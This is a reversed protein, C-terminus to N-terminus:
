CSIDVFVNTILTIYNQDQKIILMKGFSIKNDVNNGSNKKDNNIKQSTKNDANFIESRRKGDVTSVGGWVINRFQLTIRVGKM